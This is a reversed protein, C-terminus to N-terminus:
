PRNQIARGVVEGGATALLAELEDLTDDDSLFPADGTNLGAIIVREPADRKDTGAAQPYPNTNSIDTM